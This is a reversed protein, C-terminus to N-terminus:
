QLKPHCSQTEGALAHFSDGNQYDGVWLKSAIQQGTYFDNKAYSRLYGASRWVCAAGSNLRESKRAPPLQVAFPVAPIYLKM